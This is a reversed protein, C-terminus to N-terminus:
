SGRSAELTVLRYPLRSPPAGERSKEPDLPERPVVADPYRDVYAFARALLKLAEGATELSYLGELDGGPLTTAFDDGDPRVSADLWRGADGWPADAVPVVGLGARDERIGMAMLVHLVDHASRYWFFGDVSEPPGDPTPEVWFLHQPLQLYGAPAPLSPPEQGPSGDVLFRAAGTRLLWLPRGARHFQYALYALSAYQHM